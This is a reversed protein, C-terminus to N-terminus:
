AWESPRRKVLLHQTHECVEWSGRCIQEATVQNVLDQCLAISPCIKLVAPAMPESPKEVTKASDRKSRPRKPEPEKEPAKSRKTSHKSTLSWYHQYISADHRGPFFVVLAAAKQMATGKQRPWERLLKEDDVPLWRRPALTREVKVSTEATSMVPPDETRADPEESRELAEDNQPKHILTVAKNRLDVFSCVYEDPLLAEIDPDWKEGPIVVCEGYPPIVETPGFDRVLSTWTVSKDM